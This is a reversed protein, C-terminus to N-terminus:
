NTEGEEVVICSGLVIHAKADVPQSDAADNLVIFHVPFVDSVEDQGVPVQHLTDVEVADVLGLDYVLSLVVQAPTRTTRGQLAPMALVEGMLVVIGGERQCGLSYLTLPDKQQGALAATGLHLALFAHGNSHRQMGPIAQQGLSTSEEAAFRTPAKKSVRIFRGTGRTFRPTTFPGVLGRALCAAKVGMKAYNAFNNAIRSRPVVTSKMMMM